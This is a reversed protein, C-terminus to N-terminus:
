IIPKKFLFSLIPSADSPDSNHISYFYYIEINLMSLETQLTSNVARYCSFHFVPVIETCLRFKFLLLFLWRDVVHVLNDEHKVVQEWSIHVYCLSWRAGPLCARSHWGRERVCTIQLLQSMSVMALRLNITDWCFRMGSIASLQDPSGKLRANDRFMRCRLRVSNGRSEELTLWGGGASPFVHQAQWKAREWRFWLALDQRSAGPVAARLKM